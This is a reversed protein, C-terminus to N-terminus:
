GSIGLRPLSPLNGSRFMESIHSTSGKVVCKLILMDAMELVTTEIDKVDLESFSDGSEDSCSLLLSSIQSSGQDLAIIVHQIRDQEFDSAHTQKQRLELIQKQFRESVKANLSEIMESNQSIHAHYSLYSIVLAQYVDVSVCASQLTSLLQEHSFKRERQILDCLEESDVSSNFKKKLNQLAHTVEGQILARSVVHGSVANMEDAAKQLEQHVSSDIQSRMFVEMALISPNDSINLSALVATDDTSQNDEAMTCSALQGELVVKEALMAAYTSVLDTDREDGSVGLNRSAHDVRRELELIVGNIEQIERLLIDRHINGIQNRQVLYAMQGLLIAEVSLRDAYVRMKDKQSLRKRGSHERQTLAASVRAEQRSVRGLVNFDTHKFKQLQSIYELLQTMKLHLTVLDKADVIEQDGLASNVEVLKEKMHDLCQQFAVTSEAVSGEFLSAGAKMERERETLRATLSDIKEGCKQLTKRVEADIDSDNVSSFTQDTLDDTWTEFKTM